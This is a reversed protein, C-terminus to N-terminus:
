RKGARKGDAQAHAIAPRGATAAGAAFAPLDPRPKQVSDILLYEAPGKTQELKLGLKELARFITPGDGSPQQSELPHPNQVGMAASAAAMRALVGADPRDGRTHEDSAYELTFSFRGAVGTKDLVFRDMLGALSAAFDKFAGHTIEMVENGGQKWRHWQLGCAPTGEFGPPPTAEEGRGLGLPREWCRAPATQTIKLGDKAVTLAYMPVQETARHMKLQFRDEIMARLAPNLAARMYIFRATSTLDTADGTMKAEITFRDSQLWSPGGRVRKAHDGVLPNNVVNLLPGDAGVYPGTYTQDILEALTICSFHVYGPSIQAGNPAMGRGTGPPPLGPCPKISVVEFKPSKGAARDAAAQASVDTRTQSPASPAQGASADSAAAMVIRLPSITMVLLAAVACGTAVAIAGARGRRQRSDLVAVVRTSLDARNVMALLPQRQATSLRKALGVLQDAYATAEWRRLVADDCAREAELAFRRWAMWVLPHFWYCACAVRAVCQTMWDGRRVHELEHVVARRLDEDGWAQADAPLLIAPRVIGCTLPGPTSDHLLVDVHRRIGADLAIAGAVSRGHSWPLGSRRLSRVQRLGVVVPLLFLATGAVWIGFVAASLSLESSVPAVFAAAGHIAAATLDSSASPLRGDGGRNTRFDGASPPPTSVTDARAAVPVTIRISPVVLSALPLVIVVAFTAALLVHRVAARSRRAVHAAALGIAVAATVKALIWLVTALSATM